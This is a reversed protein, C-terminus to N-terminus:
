HLPDKNSCLQERRRLQPNLLDKFCRTQEAALLTPHAASGMFHMERGKNQRGRAVVEGPVNERRGEKTAKSKVARGLRSWLSGLSDPPPPLAADPDSGGESRRREAGECDSEKEGQLHRWVGSAKMETSNLWFGSLESSQGGPAIWLSKSCSSLFLEYVFCNM